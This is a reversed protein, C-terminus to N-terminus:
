EHNVWWYKKAQLNFITLRCFSKNNMMLAKLAAQMANKDLTIGALLISSCLHRYFYINIKEPQDGIKYAADCYNEM